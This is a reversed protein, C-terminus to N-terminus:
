LDLEDRPDRLMLDSIAAAVSKGEFLVQHTQEAIPMEVGHDRALDRAARTTEVGEAVQPALEAQIQELTRGRAL